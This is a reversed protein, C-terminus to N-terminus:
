RGSVFMRSLAKEQYPRIKITTKLNIDLEPNEDNIEKYDYEQTLMYKFKDEASMMTREKKVKDIKKPDIELKYLKQKVPKINDDDIDRIFNEYEEVFSDYHKTKVLSSLREKQEEEMEHQKQKMTAMTKDDPEGDGIMDDDSEDDGFIPKKVEESDSDNLDENYLWCDTLNQQKEYFDIVLRTEAEIFYRNDKLVLKAKGFSSSTNKIYNIVQKSIYKM